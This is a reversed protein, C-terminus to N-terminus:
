QAYRETEKLINPDEIEEHKWRPSFCLNSVM